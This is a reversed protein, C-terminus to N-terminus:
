VARPPADRAGWAVAAAGALFLAGLARGARWLLYDPVLNRFGVPLAWARWAAWVMLMALLTVLWRAWTAGRALGWAAILVAAVRVFGLWETVGHQLARVPALILAVAALLTLAISVRGSM